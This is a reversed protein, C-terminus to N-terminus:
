DDDNYNYNDQADFVEGHYILALNLQAQANGQDAAKEFCEKAKRIDIRDVGQGEQYMLGMNFLAKSNGLEAAKQYCEFAKKKDDKSDAYIIGLNLLSEASGLEAAQNYYDIAKEINKAVGQGFQHM